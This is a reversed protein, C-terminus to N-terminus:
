VEFFSKCFYLVEGNASIIAETSSDDQLKWTGDVNTGDGIATYIENFNLNVKNAGERLNDGTGDNASSGRGITQKAM